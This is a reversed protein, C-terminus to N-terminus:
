CTGFALSLYSRILFIYILNSLWCKGEPNPSEVTPFKPAEGLRKCPPAELPPYMIISFPPPDLYTNVILIHYMRACVCLTKEEKHVGLGGEGRWSSGGRAETISTMWVGQQSESVIMVISHQTCIRGGMFNKISQSCM